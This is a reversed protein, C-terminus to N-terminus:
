PHRSPRQVAQVNALGVEFLDEELEGALREAFDGAPPLPASHVRADDAAFRTTLM